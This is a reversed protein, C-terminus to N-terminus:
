LYGGRALEEVTTLTITYTFRLEATDNNGVPLITFTKDDYEFSSDAWYEPDGKVLIVSRASNTFTNLSIKREWSARPSVFSSGGPRLIIPIGNKYKTESLVSQDNHLININAILRVASGRIDTNYNAVIILRYFDFPPLGWCAFPLSDCNTPLAATDIYAILEEKSFIQKEKVDIIGGYFLVTEVFGDPADIWSSSFTGQLMDYGFCGQFVLFALFPLILSKLNKM